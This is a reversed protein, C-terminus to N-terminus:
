TEARAALTNASSKLMINLQIEEFTIVFLPLSFAFKVVEVVSLIYCTVKCGLVDTKFIYKYHIANIPRLEGFATNKNTDSSNAVVFHHVLTQSHPVYLSRNM